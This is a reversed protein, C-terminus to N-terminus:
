KGTRKRVSQKKGHNNGLNRVDAIFIANNNGLNGVDAIFFVNSNGLNGVDAVFFYM